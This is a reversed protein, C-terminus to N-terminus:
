NQQCKMYDAGFELASRQFTKTKILEGNKRIEIQITAKFSEIGKNPLYGEHTPIAVYTFSTVPAYAKLMLSYENNRMFMKFEGDCPKINPYFHTELAQEARFEVDHEKDKYGVLFSTMEIPSLNLPGGALAFHAENNDDTAQVWMWATPFVKGWNKEIHAYGRDKRVQGNPFQIEFDVDSGMSHVYWYLPLFSTYGMLGMPGWSQLYKSWPKRNQFKMKVKHGSSYKMEYTEGNFHGYGQAQWNFKGSDENLTFSTLKPFDEYSETKNKEPHDYIFALYGSFQTLPTIHNEELYSGTNITAFSEGTGPVVVRIYWGEFWPGKQPLSHPAFNAFALAQIFFAIFGLVLQKRCNDFKQVRGQTLINNLNM